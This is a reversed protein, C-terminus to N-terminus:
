PDFTVGLIKPYQNLPVDVNDISVAPRTAYQKNWPSFLRVQSRSLAIMLKKMIAWAVIPTLSSQLKRDLGALDSDSEMVTFDDAYSKLIDADVPCDSV